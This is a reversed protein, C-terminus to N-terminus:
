LAEEPLNMLKALAPWRSSSRIQRLLLLVAVPHRQEVAKEFWDMAGDVDGLVISFLASGLPAGYADSSILKRMLEEARSREGIREFVGALIGIHWPQMFSAKEAAHLAEAWKEQQVYSLALLFSGWPHNEEFELIRLGERQADAVRGALLYCFLLHARATISLPDEKLGQECQEIAEKVKGIAFLHWGGFWQRVRPPVPDHAMALRFQREAENWDYDYIDAVVGLMGHAEPLSSDIELARQAEDRAIPMAEHAPLVNGAAALLLFHDALGCHALAYGPDLAIAKELYEKAQALPERRIKGWLFRAKLYAEYAAQNPEYRRRAAPELSLKVQLTGTIAAAIEDQIAFIDTLDRDYRESWLHSGKSADILQATIRIRNGAKRVSGELINTVGLVEAIKRIDELKGKFAFASTRAIVMLGPIQTLANIIEEALGDSFYEQDKDGSMNVFPLVAISPTTATEQTASVPKRGSDQDRKLRQLDTRMDSASQYRLRREKELAKDIIRELEDPRDPNLRVPTTPTKHLISDFIVASTSGTFAQQGTAMEYLVVGFSFLDTRADLEEGRAQEPSMYAVTGLASGPSTLFEETTAASEAAERKEAPLKALGFDLIKAQGTQTLFINAPKIDRHIIGKTHAANLADAVQIAVDLLEETKFRSQAIRQKLTQGELLEMALFIRGESEDIDHITCIHPHNLASAAQAERRFRELAQPNKSVEEPLFKLAVQRRLRTDEAKYVVGMGGGGIREVIRYHSVTQGIEPM